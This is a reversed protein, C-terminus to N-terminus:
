CCGPFSGGLLDGHGPSGHQDEELWCIDGCRAHSCHFVRPHHLCLLMLVHARPIQCKGPPIRRTPRCFTGLPLLHRM